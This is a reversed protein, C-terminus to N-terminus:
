QDCDAQSPSNSRKPFYRQILEEKNEFKIRRLAKDKVPLLSLNMDRKTAMIYSKKRNCELCLIRLNGCSFALRPHCSIPRIHDVSLKDTSGCRVCVKEYKAYVWQKLILWEHSQYYEQMSEQTIDYHSLIEIKRLKSIRLRQSFWSEEM